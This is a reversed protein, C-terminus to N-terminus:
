LLDQFTSLTQSNDKSAYVSFFLIPLSIITFFLYNWILHRLQKFYLTVGVGLEDVATKESTWCCCHGSMSTRCAVDACTYSV